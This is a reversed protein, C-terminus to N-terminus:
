GTEGPRIGGGAADGPAEPEGEQREHEEGDPHHGVAKCPKGQDWLLFLQGPNHRGLQRLFDLVQSGRGNKKPHPALYPTV